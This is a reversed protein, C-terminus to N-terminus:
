GARCIADVGLALRRFGARVTEAEPAGYSVRLFCGQTLGFAEGPVVAVRHERVLREAVALGPLSTKLGLLFYFAGQTPYLRCCSSLPAFQEVASQRLAEMDARHRDVYCRAETLVRAAARQSPRPACILNTDQIKELAPRLAAPVVLYGLRWGAMGLSKSLSFLSITHAESGVRAAPSCHTAGEYTFYEYAEDSIHFLGRDQCLVNVAKLTEADYVVGTPNNPSVTVIARTRPTLASVLADLDLVFNPGSPVPVPVAGVMRIAMAHNFYYPCPLLVEDEPSLLALAVAMFGMNSGATVMVARGPHPLIGNDRSLKEDIAALLEPDGEVPGYRHDAPDGGFARLAEFAADPPGYSVVGQGLSIAGPTDRVWAQVTPIIPPDM